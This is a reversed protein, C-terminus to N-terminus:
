KLGRGEANLTLRLENIVARSLARADQGPQQVITIPANITPGSSQMRRFADAGIVVEPVDGVGIIQPSNFLYPTQAAKKYWEVGIKPMGNEFWTLPNLSGQVTFHPMKLKPWKFEFNFLGKIKEIATSVAEKAGNIADSIAKKIGEWKEKVATFIEGAKAKVTDWNKWLAVGLAIAAGIALTLPGGLVGVVTSIAGVVTGIAGVVGGIVGTVTGIISIVPGIAAVVLAATVIFSQTDEDLSEWWGVLTQIVPIIADMAKQIAPMIANGIEYGLELFNNLVTQFNEMPSKTAAFTDEVAGGADLAAKGLDEFSLSGSKIANFVQDGSKGFLEYAAALGETDSKGNKISDELDALAKDMSVGDKSANKLAKSLGGLVANTDAGSMEIQGMLVAAQDISLGMEQFATANKTLGSSLTDVSIGTNQGVRTLTDLYAGADEAGLGFASLAKQAADVSATISTDNIDAFKVFKTSLDTLADGTLGFRTNVEGIAEGATEFSTPLNKAIDIAQSNLTELNEGTAGTKKAVIDLGKDVQSFAALSAAGVASIPATIKKTMSDGVNKIEEGLKQVEKGTVKLVQSAVSGFDAQQKKLSKLNQETAIIERQLGKYQESNKDVGAEDMQKQADKLTNLRDGTDKIAKGLLEQKQKLLETNKPDFKLLKNVDRLDAQTSRISKDVTKLSKDLHTTDGGIEITIGKIRGSAM